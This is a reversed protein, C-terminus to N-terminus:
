MWPSTEKDWLGNLKQYDKFTDMCSWFGEHKFAKIENDSALNEFPDQELVCDEDLYEFVKKNFIFYGGNIWNDLKPKEAFGIIEDKDNLNLIGFQSYPQVATITALKGSQIHCEIEADLNVNALGDGYTALFHETKVLEQIKKIRGGTNTKPGTDVCDVKWNTELESFYNKILDGKYGLCLIFHSFGHKAYIDMIHHVIPRDGVEILPKPIKDTKTHLRTGEGGCLIVVPSDKSIM